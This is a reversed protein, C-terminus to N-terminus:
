PCDSKSLGRLIGDVTNNNIDQFRVDICPDTGSQQSKLYEFESENITYTTRTSANGCETEIIASYVFCDPSDDSNSCNFFLALMLALLLKKM